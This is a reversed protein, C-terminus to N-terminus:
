RFSSYDREFTHRQFNASKGYIRSYAVVKSLARGGGFLGRNPLIIAQKLFTGVPFYTVNLSIRPNVAHGCICGIPLRRTWKYGSALAFHNQYDCKIKPATM